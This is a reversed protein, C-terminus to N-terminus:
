MDGFLYNIWLFLSASALPAYLASPMWVFHYWALQPFIMSAYIDDLVAYSMYPIIIMTVSM